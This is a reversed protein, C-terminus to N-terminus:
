SEFSIDCQSGDTDQGGSIIEFGEGALLDEIKHRLEPKIAPTVKLSYKVQDM